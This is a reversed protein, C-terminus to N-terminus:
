TTETRDPPMDTRDVQIRFGDEDPVIEFHGVPLRFRTAAARARREDQYRVTSWIVNVPQSPRQEMRALYRQINQWDEDSLTGWWQQQLATQQQGVVAAPIDHWPVAPVNISGEGMMNAATVQEDTLNDDPRIEAANGEPAAPLPMSYLRAALPFTMSAFLPDSGYTELEGWAASDAVGYPSMQLWRDLDKPTKLLRAFPLEIGLKAVTALLHVCLAFLRNRVETAALGTRTGGRPAVAKQARAIGEDEGGGRANLGALYARHIRLCADVYEISEARRPKGTLKGDRIADQVWKVATSM